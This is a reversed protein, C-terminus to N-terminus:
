NKSTTKIEGETIYIPAFFFEKLGKKFNKSNESLRFNKM